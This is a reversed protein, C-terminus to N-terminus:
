WEVVFNELDRTVTESLTHVEFGIRQLLEIRLDAASCPRQTPVFFAQRPRFYDALRWFM